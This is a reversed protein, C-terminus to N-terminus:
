ARLDIGPPGGPSSRNENRPKGKKKRLSLILRLRLYRSLRPLIRWPVDAPRALGIRRVPQVPPPIPDRPPEHNGLPM